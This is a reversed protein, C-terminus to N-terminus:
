GVILNVLRGKVVICKKVSKGELLPAIEANQSVLSQIEDNTLGEPIMVKAKIKSNVQVAYETEAKVLADENCVPYEEEFVSSKKGIIAVLNTHYIEILCLISIVTGINSM